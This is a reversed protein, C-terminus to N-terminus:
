DTEGRLRRLAAAATLRVAEDVDSVALVNLIRTSAEAVAVQGGLDLSDLEEKLKADSLALVGAAARFHEPSAVLRTAELRATSADARLLARLCLSVVNVQEEDVAVRLRSILASTAQTSAHAGLWLLAVLLDEDDADLVATLALAEGFDRPAVSLELSFESPLTPPVVGPAIEALL